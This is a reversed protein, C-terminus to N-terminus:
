YTKETKHKDINGRILVDINHNIRDTRLCKTKDIDSCKLKFIIFLDEFTNNSNSIDRSILNKMGM